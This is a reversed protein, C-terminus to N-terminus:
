LPAGTGTVKSDVADPVGQALLISPGLHRLDHIHLDKIKARKCAEVFAKRIDWRYPRKFQSPDTRANTRTSPFLYDSNGFSPLNKLEKVASVPLPIVKPDNNKTIPIQIYPFAGELHVERWPRGLIESKRMTTLAALV